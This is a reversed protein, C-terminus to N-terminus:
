RGTLWRQLTEEAEPGLEPDPDALVDLLGWLPPAVAAARVLWEDSYACFDAPGPRAAGGHPEPCRQSRRRRTAARVTSVRVLEKLRNWTAHGFCRLRRLRPYPLAAAPAVGTPSRGGQTAGAGEAQPNGRTGL